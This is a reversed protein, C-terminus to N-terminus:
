VGLQEIGVPEVVVDVLRSGIVETRGLCKVIRKFIKFFLVGCIVVLLCVYQLQPSAIHCFSRMCLSGTEAQFGFLPQAWGSVADADAGIAQGRTMLHTDANHFIETLLM